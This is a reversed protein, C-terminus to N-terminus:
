VIICLLYNEKNQSINSPDTSSLPYWSAWRVMQVMRKLLSDVFHALHCVTWICKLLRVPEKQKWQLLRWTTKAIKTLTFLGQGFAINAELEQIDQM